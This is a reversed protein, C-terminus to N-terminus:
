DDVAELAGRREPRAGEAPGVDASRVSGPGTLPRKQRKESQQLRQAGRAAARPPPGCRESRRRKTPSHYVVTDGEMASGEEHSGAETVDLQKTCSPPIYICTDGEMASEPLASQPASELSSPGGGPKQPSPLSFLSLPKPPSSLMGNRPRVVTKEASSVDASM